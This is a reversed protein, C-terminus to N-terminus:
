EREVEMQRRLRTVAYHMRGLATNLPVGLLAAIEAFTLEQQTRLLFVERQLPPLRAVLGAVRAALDAAALAAQPSAESSPLRELLSRGEEEEGADLSVTPRVRRARDILLHRAITTLWARFNGDRYSKLHRMVRCWTEQFVDEADQLSPASGRLYGMLARGHREILLDMAGREGRRCAAILEQDNQTCSAMREPGDWGEYDRAM